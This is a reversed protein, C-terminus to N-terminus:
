HSALPQWGEGAAVSPGMKCGRMLFHGTACSGEILSNARNERLALSWTPLYNRLFFFFIHLFIIVRVSSIGAALTTPSAPALFHEPHPSPSPGPVLLTIARSRDRDECLGM